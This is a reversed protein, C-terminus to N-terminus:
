SSLQKNLLIGCVILMAMSQQVLFWIMFVRVTYKYHSIFIIFINEEHVSRLQKVANLYHVKHLGVFHHM